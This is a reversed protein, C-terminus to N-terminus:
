FHFKSEVEFEWSLADVLQFAEAKVKLKLHETISFKSGAEIALYEYNKGNRDSTIGGGAEIYPTAQDIKREIGIRAANSLSEFNRDVGKAKSSIAIYPGAQAYPAPLLLLTSLLLARM